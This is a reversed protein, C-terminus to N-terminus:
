KITALKVVFRCAIKLIEEYEDRYTSIVIVDATKYSLTFKHHLILVEKFM